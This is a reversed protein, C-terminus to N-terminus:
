VGVAATRDREKYGHWHVRISPLQLYGAAPAGLSLYVIKSSVVKAGASAPNWLRPEVVASVSIWSEIKKVVVPAAATTAVATGVSSRIGTRYIRTATISSRGESWPDGQVPGEGGGVRNEINKEGIRWM